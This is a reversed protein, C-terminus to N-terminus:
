IEHPPPQPLGSTPALCLPPNLSLTHLCPALSCPAIRAGGPAPRPISLPLGAGGAGHGTGRKLRSPRAATGACKPIHRDAVDQPALYLSHATDPPDTLFRFGKRGLIARSQAEIGRGGPGDRGPCYFWQLKTESALQPSVSPDVASSRKPVSKNLQPDWLDAEGLHQNCSGACFASRRPSPAKPAKPLKSPGM